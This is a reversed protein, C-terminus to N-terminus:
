RRRLDIDHADDIALVDIVEVKILTVPAGQNM